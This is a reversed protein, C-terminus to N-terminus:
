EIERSERRKRRKRIRFWILLGIILGVISCVLILRFLPVFYKGEADESALWRLSYYLVSGEELEIRKGGGWVNEVFWNIIGDFWNPEEAPLRGAVYWIVFDKKGSVEMSKLKIEFPNCTFILPIDCIGTIQCEDVKVVDACNIETEDYRLDDLTFPAVSEISVKKYTTLNGLVSRKGEETKTVVATPVYYSLTIDKVEEAGISAIELKYDGKVSSKTDLTVNKYESSEEDDPCGGKYEGECVILDEAYNIPIRYEVNTVIDDAQNKVRLVVSILANEGVEFYTPFYTSSYVTVSSTIYTVEITKTEGPNLYISEKHTPDDKDIILIYPQLTGYPDYLLNKSIDDLEIDKAGFPLELKFVKATAYSNPNYFSLTNKWHINDFPKVPPNLISIDQTVEVPYGISNKLQYSRNTTSNIIYDSFWEVKDDIGDGDM